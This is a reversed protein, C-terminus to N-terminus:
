FDGSEDCGNVMFSLDPWFRGGLSGPWGGQMLASGTVGIPGYKKPKRRLFTVDRAPFEGSFRQYHGLNGRGHGGGGQDDKM